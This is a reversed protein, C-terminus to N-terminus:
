SQDMEPTEDTQKLGLASEIEARTARGEPTGSPLTSAIERDTMGSRSKSYRLDVGEPSFQPDEGYFQGPSMPMKLESVQDSEGPLQVEVSRDGKSSRLVMGSNRQHVSGHFNG